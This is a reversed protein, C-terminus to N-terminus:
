GWVVNVMATAGAAVVDRAQRQVVPDLVDPNL